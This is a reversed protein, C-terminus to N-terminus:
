VHLFPPFEVQQQSHHAGGCGGSGGTADTEAAISIFLQALYSRLWPIWPHPPLLLQKGMREVMDGGGDTIQFCECHTTQPTSLPFLEKGLKSDERSPTSSCVGVAGEGVAERGRIVVQCLQGDSLYGLWTHNSAPSGHALPYLSSVAGGPFPSISFM